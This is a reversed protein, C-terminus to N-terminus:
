CKSISATPAARALPLCGGHGHGGDTDGLVTVQATARRAGWVAVIQAAGAQRGLVLGGASVSAVTANSSSWTVTEESIRLAPSGVFAVTFRVSDGGRITASSPALSITPDPPPPTLTPGSTDSCGLSLAALSALFISSTARM